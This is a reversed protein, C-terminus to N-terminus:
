NLFPRRRGNPQDPAQKFPAFDSSVSKTLLNADPDAMEDIGLAGGYRCARYRWAAATPRAYRCLGGRLVNRARDLFRKGAATLGVHTNGGRDVV